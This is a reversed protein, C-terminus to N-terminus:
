SGILKWNIPKACRFKSMLHILRHEWSERQGLRETDASILSLWSWARSVVPIYYSLVSHIVSPSLLSPAFNVAPLLVAPANVTRIRTRLSGQTSTPQQVQISSPTGSMSDLMRMEHTPSKLSLFLHHSAQPWVALEHHLLSLFQTEGQWDQGRELECVTLISRWPALALEVKVHSFFLAIGSRLAKGGWVKVFLPHAM